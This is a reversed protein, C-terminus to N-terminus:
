GPQLSQIETASPNETEFKVTVQMGIYDASTGFFRGSIPMVGRPHNSLGITIHKGSTQEGLTPDFGTWGHGALYVETWAHTSAIGALSAPCDLYGSSFRSAIGLARCAEMLLTAMDRCSGTARNLTDLPTQVGKEERRNYRIQEKVAQWRAQSSIASM